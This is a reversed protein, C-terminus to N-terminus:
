QIVRSNFKDLRKMPAGILALIFCRKQYLGIIIDNLLSWTTHSARTRSYAACITSIHVLASLYPWMKGLGSPMGFIYQCAVLKAVLVHFNVCLVTYGKNIVGREFSM